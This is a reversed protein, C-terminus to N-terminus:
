MWWTCLCDSAGNSRGPRAYGAYIGRVIGISSYHGARITDGRAARAAIGYTVSAEDSTHGSVGFGRRSLITCASHTSAERVRARACPVRGHMYRGRTCGRPGRVHGHNLPTTPESGPADRGPVYLAVYSVVGDSM